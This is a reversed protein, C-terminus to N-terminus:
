RRALTLLVAAMLLCLPACGAEMRGGTAKKHREYREYERSLPHHPNSGRM